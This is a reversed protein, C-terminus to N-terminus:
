RSYRHLHHQGASHDYGKVRHLGAKGLLNDLGEQKDASDFHTELFLEDVHALADVSAGELIEYEGGEVDIKVIIRDTPGGTTYAEQIVDDFPVVAVSIVGQLAKDTRELTSHSWSEDYVFLETNGASRGVAQKFVSADQGHQLSLEINKCLFNFNNPEPEYALLATCGAQLAYASFIGRHAGIDVVISRSYDTEYTRELFVGRFVRWDPRHLADIRVVGHEVPVDVVCSGSSVDSFLISSIAKWTKTLPYSGEISM